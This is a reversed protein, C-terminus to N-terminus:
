IANEAEEIAQYLQDLQQNLGDLYSMDQRLENLRKQTICYTAVNAVTLLAFAAIVAVAVITAPTSAHQFLSFLQVGNACGSACNSFGDLVQGDASIDLRQISGNIKVHLNSILTKTQNSVSLKM